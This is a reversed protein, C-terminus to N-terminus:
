MKYQEDAGCANNVPCIMNDVGGGETKSLSCTSDEDSWNGGLSECVEVNASFQELSSCNIIKQNDASLTLVVNQRVEETLGNSAGTINKYKVIISAFYSITNRKIYQVVSPSQPLRRPGIEISDIKLKGYKQDKILQIQGNSLGDVGALGNLTITGTTTFFNTAVPINANSDATLKVVGCGTSKVLAALEDSLSASDEKAETLVQQKKVEIFANMAGMIVFILISSAVMIEVLTMGKENLYIMRSSKM